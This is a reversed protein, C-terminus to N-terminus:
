PFLFHLSNIHRDVFFFVISIYQIILIFLRDPDSHVVEYFVVRYAPSRRGQTIRSAPDLSVAGVNLHFLRTLASILNLISNQPDGFGPYWPRLEVPSPLHMFILDLILNIYCDEDIMGQLIFRMVNKWRPGSISRRQKRQKYLKSLEPDRDRKEISRYIANTAIWM